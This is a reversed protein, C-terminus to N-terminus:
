KDDNVEIGLSNFLNSVKGKNSLKTTPTIIEDLVEDKRISQSNNNFVVNYESLLTDAIEPYLNSKVLDVLGTNQKKLYSNDLKLKKLEEQKEKLVIKNESNEHKLKQIELILKKSKDEIDSIYNGYSKVFEMYYNDREVIAKKLLSVNNNKSLFSDVDIAKFSIESTLNDKKNESKLELVINKLKQNSYIVHYSINKNLNKNVYTIFKKYKFYDINSDCHIEFYSKFLAILTEDEIIKKRAM